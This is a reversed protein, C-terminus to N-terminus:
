PNLAKSLSDRSGLCDRSALGVWEGPAICANKLVLSVPEPKPAPVIKPPQKHRAGTLSVPKPHIFALHPQPPGVAPPQPVPSLALACPSSSPTPHHATIVLGQSQSFTTASADHTLTASATHTIVPTSKSVGAFKQPQLFAPPTPPNLTPAPPPVLPLATPVPAPAPGPSLLTMTFVPLFPQPVSLPPESPGFDAPQIFPDVPQSTRDCGQGETPDLSPAASSAILSSPLSVPPLSTNPM